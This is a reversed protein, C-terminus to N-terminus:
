KKKALELFNQSLKKSRNTRPKDVENIQKLEKEIESEKVKFIQSLKKTSINENKQKILAASFINHNIHRHSNKREFKFKEYLLLDM